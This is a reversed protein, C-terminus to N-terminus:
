LIFTSSSSYNSTVLHKAVGEHLNDNQIKILTNTSCMGQLMM